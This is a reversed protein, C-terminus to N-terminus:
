SMAVILALRVTDDPLTAYDDGATGTLMNESPQTM